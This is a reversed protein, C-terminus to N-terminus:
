FNLYVTKNDIKYDIKHTYKLNELVEELSLNDFRGKIQWKGIPKNNAIFTAGYWRELKTMVRKYDDGEFVLLGDKWGVEAAAEFSSTVAELSIKDITVKEGKTLIIEDPHDQDEPSPLIKVKGSVLSVSIEDQEPFSNVNFSTGLVVAVVQGTRVIFPKDKNEVVDFYAEGTLEVTRNEGEFREPFVISSESNLHVRSGDPLVMTLKQGKPMSRTVTKVAEVVQGSPPNDEGMRGLLFICSVLFISAAIRFRWRPSLYFVPQASVQSVEEFRDTKQGKLVHRLVNEQESEEVSYQHFKLRLLVERAKQVTDKKEPHAYLWKEWFLDLQRDQNLVWRKFEDDTLFDELKYYKYEKKIM